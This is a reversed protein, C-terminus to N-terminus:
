LVVVILLVDPLGRSATSEGDGWVVDVGRNSTTSLDAEEEFLILELVKLLLLDLLDDLFVGLEDGVGDLERHGLLNLLDTGM